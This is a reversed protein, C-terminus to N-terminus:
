HTFAGSARLDVHHSLSYQNGTTRQGERTYSAMHGQWLCLFGLVIGLGLGQRAVEECSLHLTTSCGVLVTVNAQVRCADRQQAGGAVRRPAKACSSGKGPHEKRYGTGRCMEPRQKFAVKKALSISNNLFTGVGGVWQGALVPETSLQCKQHETRINKQEDVGVQGNAGCPYLFHM